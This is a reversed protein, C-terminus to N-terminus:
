LSLQTNFEFILNGSDKDKLFVMLSHSLSLFVPPDKFFAIGSVVVWAIFIQEHNAAQMWMLTQLNHLLIVLILFLKLKQKEFYPALQRGFQTM